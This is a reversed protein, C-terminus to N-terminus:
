KIKRERNMKLQSRLVPETLKRKKEKRKQKKKHSCGTDNCCGEGKGGDGAGGRGGGGASHLTADDFHSNWIGRPRISKRISIAKEREPKRVAVVVM